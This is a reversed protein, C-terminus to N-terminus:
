EGALAVRNRGGAKARYLAQDAAALTDRWRESLQPKTWAVGLSITVRPAAASSPHPLDLCEVASRLREAHAAAQARDIGTLLCAFEEGGYRVVLDGPRQALQTLAASIRRLCEDGALHGLTDNYDKFHDVDLMVFALAEGRRALRRWEEDAHTELRRRNPLGTLPDTVSLEALLANAESLQRTREGVLAELEQARAHLRRERYRLLLLGLSTLALGQLALAWPRQWLKARVSFAIEVPAPVVGGERAEVRFVYAGAPLNTYSRRPEESWASPALDYGVLQTRYRIAGARRATLVAYEFRVDHENPELTAGPRITRGSSSAEAQELVLPAPPAVDAAESSTDLLAVGGTTAIWIRGHSDLLQGWNATASPLGDSLGFLEADFQRGRGHRRARDAARRRATDRPLHTGDPGPRDVAGHPEAAAARRGPGATDLPRWSPKRPAGGRGAHRGLDRSPRRAAHGRGPGHGRREAPGSDRNWTAAVRGDIVQAIGGGRTGVWLQRRGASETELLSAVHDSPLGDKTTIVSWRGRRMCALGSRETGVWLVASGDAANTALLWAGHDTNFAPRADVRQWREGVRRVLGLGVVSAWIEPARGPERLEALALVQPGPLGQAAGEVHLRGGRIVALGQATGIWYVPAGARDRTELFSLVQDTPLGSSRDLTLWSASELRLLGSTRTGIWLGGPDEEGGAHLSYVETISRGLPVPVFRGVDLRFLGADRTSAWLQQAGGHPRTLALSTVLPSALGQARGLRTARGIRRGYWDDARVVGSGYTGLWVSGREGMQVIANVSPVEGGAVEVAAFRSGELVALGGEGGAVLLTAGSADEIERIVWLRLDRLGESVPVFRSGDFRAAGGGLTAAWIGGDRAELLHNVRGAPLGSERGLITSRGDKLRVVGGNDRGFWCAAM